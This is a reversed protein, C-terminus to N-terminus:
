TQVHRYGKRAADPGGCTPQRRHFSTQLVSNRCWISLSGGVMTGYRARSIPAVTFFGTRGDFSSSQGVGRISLRLASRFSPYLSADM